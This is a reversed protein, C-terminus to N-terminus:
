PVLRAFRKKGVKLIHASEPRALRYEVDTVRKGNVQVAGQQILRRAESASKVLNADRLAQVIWLDGDNWNM